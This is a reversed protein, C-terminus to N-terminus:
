ENYKRYQEKMQETMRRVGAYFENLKRSQLLKRVGNLEDFDSIELSELETQFFAVDLWKKM